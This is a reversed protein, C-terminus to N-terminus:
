FKELLVFGIEVDNSSTSTAKATLTDGPLVVIPKKSLDLHISDAKGLAIPQKFIGGTVTTGAIDKLTIFNTADVAVYSPTGGISANSVIEISVPKTGESSAVIGIVHIARDNTIGDFDTDNKISLVSAGTTISKTNRVAHQRGAANSDAQSNTVTGGRWSGNKVIIDTANTTNISETIARLYPSRIHTETQMNAYKFVHMSHWQKDNDCYEFTAPAIGLFGFSVRFLNSTQFNINVGSVGNGDMSDDWSARPIFSVETGARIHRLGLTTGQYELTWGDLLTAFGTRQENGVVATDFTVTFYLFSEDASIYHVAHRSLVQMSSNAAAGSSCILSGNPATATGLNVLTKKVELDSIGNSFNVNIDISQQVTVTGGFLSNRIQRGCSDVLSARFFNIGNKLVDLIKFAM